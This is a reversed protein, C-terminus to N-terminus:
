VSDHEQSHKRKEAGIDPSACANNFEYIIAPMFLSSTGTMIVQKKKM